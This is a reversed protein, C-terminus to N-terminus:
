EDTSKKNRAQASQMKADKASKPKLQPLLPKEPLVIQHKQSDKM